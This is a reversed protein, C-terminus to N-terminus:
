RLAKGANTQDRRAIAIPYARNKAFSSDVSVEYDNGTNIGFSITKCPLNITPLKEHQENMYWSSTMGHLILQEAPMSQRILIQLLNNIEKLFPDKRAQARSKPREACRGGCDARCDVVRNM